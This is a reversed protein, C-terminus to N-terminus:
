SLTRSYSAMFGPYVQTGDTHLQIVMYNGSSKVTFSQKSGCYKGIQPSSTGPGNYAAVFDYPCLATGFELMFISFTVEIRLGVPASFNYFCDLRNVYATPYGPSMFNGQVSSFTANCPTVASPPTLTVGPPIVGGCYANNIKLVDLTSMGERQGILVTDDPIPVITPLSNYSYTYKSYHMVSRYDYPGVADNTSMIQFNYEKGRIINAFLIRVHADRDTRSQEHVFGLAHMTEHIIVGKYTCAGPMISVATSTRQQYGITGSCMGGNYFNIYSAESTRPFFRLCTKTQFDQFAQAFVALNEPSYYSSFAYPIRVLGDPSAPWRASPDSVISRIANAKKVDGAVGDGGIMKSAGPSGNTANIAPRTNIAVHVLAGLICIMLLLQIADRTRQLWPPYLQHHQQQQFIVDTSGQMKKSYASAEAMDSISYKNLDVSRRRAGEM